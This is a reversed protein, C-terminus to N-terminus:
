NFTENEEEKHRYQLKKVCGKECLLAFVSAHIEKEKTVGLGSKGELPDIKTLVTWNNLIDGVSYIGVRLLANIAGGKLDLHAISMAEVEDNPTYIVKVREKEIGNNM